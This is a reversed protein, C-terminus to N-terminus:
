AILKSTDMYSITSKFRSSDIRVESELDRGGTSVTYENNKIIKSILPITILAMEMINMKNTINNLVDNMEHINQLQTIHESKTDNMTINLYYYNILELNPKMVYLINDISDNNSIKTNIQRQLSSVNNTLNTNTSSISSSLSSNVSDIKTNLESLTLGNIKKESIIQGKVTLDGAVTYGGAQLKTAVESLNRIAEVDALYVQKVAEKIDNSVDAMPEQSQRTSACWYQHFM